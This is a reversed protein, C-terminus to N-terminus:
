RLFNEVVVQTGSRITLESEARAANLSGGILFAGGLVILAIRCHVRRTLSPLFPSKLSLPIARAM